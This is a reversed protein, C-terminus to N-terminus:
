FSEKLIVDSLIDLVKDKAKKIYAEQVNSDIMMEYAKQACSRDVSSLVYRQLDKSENKLAMGLISPDVHKTVAIIENKSLNALSEFSLSKILLEQALPANRLSLEGLLKKKEEGSMIKFMEIIQSKGDLFIQSENSSDM